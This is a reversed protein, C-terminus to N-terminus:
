RMGVPEATLAELSSMNEAGVAKAITRLENSFLGLSKKRLDPPLLNIQSLFVNVTQRVDKTKQGGGDLEGLLVMYKRTADLLESNKFSEPEELSRRVTELLLASVAVRLLPRADQISMRYNAERKTREWEVARLFQPGETCVLVQLGSFGMAKAIGKRSFPEGEKWTTGDPRVFVGQEMDVAIKAAHARLEGMHKTIWRNRDRNDRCTPPIDWAGIPRVTEGIAEELALPPEKADREPFPVLSEDSVSTGAVLAFSSPQLSSM